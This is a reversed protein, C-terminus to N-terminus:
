GPQRTRAGSRTMAARRAAPNAAPAAWASSSKSGARCVTVAWTSARKAMVMGAPQAPEAPKGIADDAAVLDRRQFPGRLTAIVDSIPVPHDM